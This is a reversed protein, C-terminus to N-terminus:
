YLPSAPLDEVVSSLLQYNLCVSYVYVYILFFFFNFSVLQSFMFTQDSLGVDQDHYESLIMMHVKKKHSWILFHFFKGGQGVKEWRLLEIQLKM